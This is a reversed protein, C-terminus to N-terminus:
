KLDQEIITGPQPTVAPKEPQPSPAPKAAPPTIPKTKQTTVKTQKKPVASVKELEKIRKEAANLKRELSSTVQSLKKQYVQQHTKLELDLIKKDVKSSSLSVFNAQIKLLDEKVRDISQSLYAMEKAFRHDLQKIDATITKLDESVAGVMGATKKNDAKRASRIYRIATTAKELRNEISAIEKGLDEELKAQKLSLSSFRSELAKSLTQVEMTGTTNMQLLSQKVAFYAVFCIVGLLCPILISIRTIRRNLRELQQGDIEDQFQADPSEEDIRIKFKSTDGDPMKAIGM